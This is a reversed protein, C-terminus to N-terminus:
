HGHKLFNMRVASTTANHRLIQSAAEIVDARASQFAGSHFPPNPAYPLQAQIAAGAQEGLMRGIAALTVDIGASVGAATILREHAVYREHRYSAGLSELTERSAWHTTATLGRLTGAQALILAGTCVSMVQGEGASRERLWALLADNRAAQLTGYAGGPVILLDYAPANAITHTTRLHLAGTDTRIPGDEIGVLDISVSPARSLVEYPGMADLATMGEYLLIGARLAPLDAPLAPQEVAAFPPAPDYEIALQLGEAYTQSSLRAAMALAADLAGSGGECAVIREGDANVGAAALAERGKGVALVGRAHEAVGRLWEIESDSADRTHSGAVVIVHPRTAEGALTATAEYRLPGRAAAKWGLTEGAYIPHADPPRGLIEMPGVLDLIRAGDSALAVIPKTGRQWMYVWGAGGAGALGVAGAALALGRRTIKFGM